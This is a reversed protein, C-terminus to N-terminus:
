GGTRSVEPVIDFYVRDVQEEGSCAACRIHGAERFGAKTLVLRSPLNDAMAWAYLSCLRMEGFAVGTLKKVAQTVIGQASLRKEGLLYWIM